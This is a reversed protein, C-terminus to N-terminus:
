LWILLWPHNQAINEEDDECGSLMGVLAVAGIARILFTNM